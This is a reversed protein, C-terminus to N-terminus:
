GGQNRAVGRTVGFVKEELRRRVEEYRRRPEAEECQGLVICRELERELEGLEQVADGLLADQTAYHEWKGPERYRHITAMAERVGRWTEEAARALERVEDLLGVLEM